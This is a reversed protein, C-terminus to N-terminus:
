LHENLSLKLREVKENTFEVYFENLSNQKIQLSEFKIIPNENIRLLYSAEMNTLSSVYDSYLPVDLSFSIKGRRLADFITTSFITILFSSRDIWDTLSGQIVKVNGFKTELPKYLSENEFPHPKICLCWGQNLKPSINEIFQIFYKEASYQTTILIIKTANDIAQTIRVNSDEKHYYGCINIKSSDFECGDLLLNKWYKGYVFIEDPFLARKIIGKVQNPIVYFIDEKAILGHQLEVVKIKNKRCAHIFGENHYHCILLLAKFKKEILLADLKIYNIFFINVAIRIDDIEDKNWSSTFEKSDLYHKLSKFLQVNYSSFVNTNLTLEEIFFDFDNKNKIQNTISCFNKRGLSSFIRPFCQNGEEITRDSFGALYEADKFNIIKNKLLIRKKTDALFKILFYLYVVILPKKFLDRTKGRKSYRVKLGDLVVKFLNIDLVDFCTGDGVKSYFQEKFEKFTIDFGQHSM